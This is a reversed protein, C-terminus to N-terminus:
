ELDQVQDLMKRLRRGRAPNLMKCHNIRGELQARGVPAEARPQPAFRKILSETEEVYSDPVDIGTNVRVGTVVQESCKALVQTKEVRVAFGAQRVIKCALPVLRAIHAPGSLTNDDVFDSYDGLHARALGHLRRATPAFVLNAVVPSTPAGQPLQYKYTTLRTLTRAVDPSSGLRAFMEYVHHRRVSGFFDKVDIKVVMPKRVHPVANLVISHGPRCGHMYDPLEVRQLLLNITRQVDKLHRNPVYLIRTAGSKKKIERRAYLRDVRRCLASLTEPPLGILRGLHDVKKINLARLTRM